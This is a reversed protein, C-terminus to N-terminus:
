DELNKVQNYFGTAQALVHGTQPEIDDSNLEPVDVLMAIHEISIRLLDKLADIQDDNSSFDDENFPNKM